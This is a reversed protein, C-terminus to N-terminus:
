PLFGSNENFNRDNSLLSEDMRWRKRHEMKEFHVDEVTCIDKLSKRHLVSVIRCKNENFFCCEVCNKVPRKVYYVNKDDPDRISLTWMVHENM